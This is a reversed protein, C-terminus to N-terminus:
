TQVIVPCELEAASSTEVRHSPVMNILLQPLSSLVLLPLQLMLTSSAEVPHGMQVLAGKGLTM